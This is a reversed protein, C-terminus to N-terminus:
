KAPEGYGGVLALTHSAAAVVGSVRRNKLAQLPTPRTVVVWEKGLGLQGAANRGWVYLTGNESVFASHSNGAAFTDVGYPKKQAMVPPLSAVMAPSSVPNTHGLGLQGFDNQGWAHVGRTDDVAFTHYAGCVLSDITKGQLGHIAQPSNRNYGEGLGLESGENYGWAYTTNDETVAFSSFAGVCIARVSSSGQFTIQTPKSRDKTDGTELQGHTNSGWTYLVGKETLAAMHNYGSCIQVFKTTKFIEMRVPSKVPGLDFYSHGLQGSYNPGWTYPGMRNREVIAATNYQGCAFHRAVKPKELAFLRNPTSVHKTIDGLGLQGFANWGWSYVSGSDTRCITHGQHEYAHGGTCIQTITSTAKSTVLKPKLEHESAYALGLQAHANRGWALLDLDKNIALTHGKSIAFNEFASQKSVPLIEPSERARQDGLGLNGSENCGWVFVKGSRVTAMTMRAGAHIRVGRVADVLRPITIFENANDIGSTSTGRLPYGLQSCDNSGFTFIEGKESLAVSHRQGAAISQVRSRTFRHLIAHPKDRDEADGLGLQGRDNGGWTYIEGSQSLALTHESGTVLASFKIGQLAGGSVERPKPSVGGSTGLGLQGRENSGWTWISGSASLAVVFNSGAAIDVIRDNAIDSSVLVPLNRDRVDGIGLQGDRNRGWTYVSGRETLVVAFAEGAAARVITERKSLEVPVMSQRAENDGVGLQGYQNCGFAYLVGETTLILSFGGEGNREDEAGGAAFATVKKPYFTPVVEPKYVDRTHGLGLQGANNKGWALLAVAEPESASKAAVTAQILCWVAVAVVIGRRDRTRPRM